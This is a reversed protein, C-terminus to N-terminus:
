NTYTAPVFILSQFVSPVEAGQLQLKGMSYTRKNERTVDTVSFPMATRGNYHNKLFM